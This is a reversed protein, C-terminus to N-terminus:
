WVQIGQSSDVLLLAGQCAALSRSVEYSFDVHGPTDILNLIFNEKMTPEYYCMTAGQAKVTIGREREVQLKDLVQASKRQSATINGTLSLLCDALTSKGHDIHAIICFNRIHKTDVEELLKQQEEDSFQRDFRFAVGSASTSLSRQVATATMATGIQKRLLLSLPLALIGRQHSMAQCCLGRMIQVNRRGTSSLNSSLAFSSPLNKKAAAYVTKM